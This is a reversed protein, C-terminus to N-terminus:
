EKSTENFIIKLYGVKDHDTIVKLQVEEEVAVQIIELHILVAAAAVVVAVAVTVAVVVAVLTVLTVVDALVGVQLDVEDERM